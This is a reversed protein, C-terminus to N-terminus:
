NRARKCSLIYDTLNAVGAGTISSYFANNGSTTGGKNPDRVELSADFAVSNFTSVDAFFSISVVPTGSNSTMSADFTKMRTITGFDDSFPATPSVEFVNVYSLNGAASTFNVAISCAM